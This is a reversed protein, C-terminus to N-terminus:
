ISFNKSRNPNDLNTLLSSQKLIPFQEIMEDESLWQGKFLTIFRNGIQKWTRNRVTDKAAIYDAVLHKRQFTLRNPNRTEKRM